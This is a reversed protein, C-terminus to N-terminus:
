NLTESELVNETSLSLKSKEKKWPYGPELFGAQAAGSAQM